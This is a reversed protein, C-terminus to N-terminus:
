CTRPIKAITHLYAESARDFQDLGDQADGARILRIGRVQGDVKAHEADLFSQTVGNRCDQQDWFHFIVGTLALDLALGIATLMVWVRNIRTDRRNAETQATLQLVRENYREVAARLEGVAVVLAGTGSAVGPAKGLESM